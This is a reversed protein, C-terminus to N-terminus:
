KKIQELLEKAKEFAADHELSRELMQIAKKTEGQRHSIDGLYFFVEAKTIPANDDLRQLLLARFTKQARDLDEMDLALRGLDVLIALNGPTIRFAQDLEALGKEKDGDAIYAKALRHHITALEKVRKGGYSEVIKELAVVADKGRGSASYADCLALLLDRDEPASESAKELLLAAAAADNRKTLQIDAAQQLMKVKTADDEAADADEALLAAVEAWAQTKEYLKRLRERVDTADRKVELGRELARRAGAADDIKDFVEALRLALAVADDGDQLGLLKELTEAARTMEGKAEFLRGLAELAGKHGGDRQLVNEYTEIAKATDGLRGEYVEGLRVTFTLEAESDARDKALDIQTNLLDALDRDRGSKEYLQSLAVVAETKGPEEDLVRHLVLIAESVQDFRGAYLDALELRLANREEPSAAVDVMRGLLDALDRHREEKAYLSRLATAAKRDMPDADFIEEYIGLAREAEDLKELMMEAARHRLEATEPGSATLEARRLLLEVAEKHDEAKERLATLEEYAWLYGDDMGILQRLVEESLKDDAVVTAALTQAERFLERRKETDLELVARRRLTEILDRERGPERQLGEIVTLLDLNEADRALAERMAREAAANDALRERYWDALKTYLDRATLTDLEEAKALADSLSQAAETWQQNVEALAELKGLVEVDAPDDGLADQIVKQAHKPDGAQGELVRALDLRLRLRDAPVTAFAVRKEYLAALRGYDERARYVAELATAAEEFLEKDETLKEIAECAKAHDPAHDLAMRLTELGQLKDGFSEIQLVALRHYLDAQAGPETEVSVRRELIESLEQANGLKSHLRDLAELLAPADGSQELARTYAEVARKEDSLHEECLKGLRTWLETALAAEFIKSAREELADAVKAHGDSAAALREIEQHLETDEPTEGLARLMADLAKGSSGLSGDLVEAMARLTQAREPPDLQARLRMELVGVLREHKGTARLVPELIEASELRLAEFSEGIQLVASVASSDEPAEDLVMRFAELAEAPEAIENALLRGIESRLKVRDETAEAVSAELRLTELLDTWMEESRFLQELKQLVGRDAPRVDLAQRLMDIAAPNDRIQEQYRGAANVLLEYKLDDQDDDALEVRRQYLEVLRAADNSSEYLEILCDITFASTPDLDLAREFAQTAGAADDLMDRKCEGVRRWASARDEDSGILEAKKTLVDVLADWDSLLMALFDMKELPEADTEDLAHLRGYAELAQRPDDRKEDHIAALAALLDRKVMGEAGELGGEYADALDDWAGLGDALRELEGRIELDEPDIEFAARLADFARRSDAGREEWLRSTERLISVRDLDDGALDFRQANLHILKRWDDAGEYLPLLTEVVRAKHDESDMLQELDAIAAKHSPVRSVIEELQDIAASLDKMEDRQLRALSLRYLCAKDDDAESEARRLYLDALEGFRGCERYLETLADLSVSDNEDVDVAARFTEIAKDAEGLAGRELAAITHLIKLRDEPEFRHDLAGRYLEVRAESRNADILLKDIADFLETSEPEFNLARQYYVLARDVKGLSAFLEGTRRALLATAPEDTLVEDLEAAFIEALRQEAGAVRAQSELQRWTDQDTIDEHLLKATTELAAAFDEEQEEQMLALRRLLERRKDPDQSSALRAEITAKVSKWDARGLYFPELMEAARARHDPDEAEKLLRELEAIAGEHQSDEALADGLEDFARMPDRLKADAVRAIKVRLDAKDAPSAELQREYLAVLDTAREAQVYLKELAEVAVPDLDIDLVSEYVLIAGDRDELVDSCLRAQRFLLQKREDDAEAADVRRRIIDLLANADGAEEYLSELAVLARRDDARIDMARIYYDRAMERDALETRALDAIRLTVDLQIDGDLIDPAVDRLLAVLEGFRRTASALREVIELWEQVEEGGAAERLGRVGFEFARAPAELPGEAVRVAQRLLSLREEPMLSTEAEIEVVRLLRENDGDAEYLPHLVQAAERRAAEEGLLRELADRSPQHSPEVTLAQRYADLAGGLDNQHARRVDGLRVLLALREAPEDALSLHIEFTEALDIWREAKEYLAELAELTPRDPGFEDVIARWALTAEPVDDLKETLTAAMRTMLRRREEEDDATEQRTRLVEVLERWAEVKEYLRELAALATADVPEDDLRARWADIAGKPDELISECIEGLRGYLEARRAIDDELKVETRLIEVLAAHNGMGAYIEELARAAPLVLNPDTSDIELVRLYVAEARGADGLQDRFISAVEMLISGQVDPSPAASSAKTLVEAIQDHSGSRRGIDILRARARGDVPDLPVLRALAELAGTDDALREDRLTAIRRLLSRQEAEDNATELRIDLVRVLDRTEDRTEYVAELVEAARARLEPVELIREALARADHQNPDMRLVDEVHPLASAPDALNDLQLTGLRLKIEVLDDGDARDLRRELLAVLKGYKKENAYLKELSATASSHLPELDLIREQYDIAKTADEIIDECILAVESLFEIRRASDTTGTIASAYLAELEGWRERAMLIEKLDKFAEENAPQRALVRELYPIAADQDGVQERCLKAARQCLEVEVADPLNLDGELVGRYAHALDGPRGAVVSLDKARDWLVLEESFETVAKLVVDLAQGADDLKIEYVDILRALLELRRGSESTSDILVALAAAEAPADDRDAHVKVLVDAALARTTEVSMLKDLVGIARAADGGHALASVCAGLADDHRALQDVYLEALSLELEGQTADDAQDRHAEVVEAAGAADGAAILLRPLSTLARECSADLELARRYLVVARESESFAEEELMAWEILMSVSDQENAREIRLEFLWRLDDRRSAARLIGDLTQIVEEDEPAEAVLVRYAKIAEDTRDLEHAYVQALRLQLARQEESPMDPENAIRSEIAEVFPQWSGAARAHTEVLQLAGEIGPALDYAKRAYTLAAEKDSLRSGTVEALKRLLALQEDTDEAHALLIEYLAPLRSWREEREYIPVLHSAARTDDPRVSLVREYARFAREPTDLQEEYVQAARYSLDIKTDATTARDAAASLVEALGEWDENQGYLETIADFDEAALYSDRLVRMARSHDPRIELVRKWAGAARRPDELRDAYVAGLKQLVSIRANEDEAMEVRRELVEAVTEYDKDREAQKELADMAGAANSDIALVKKYLAIADSSRDLREAALKAMELFLEVRQDEAVFGAEAELLVFLQPWARRRSYLERLRGRAEDDSPELQFIREYVETANQVNQFQELWRKGAARLLTLKEERDDSLEALKQQHVLLDRWRQLSEYVRCLERVADIDREDHQLIQGLVTVLASDSKINDRYVEAIERLVALRGDADDAAVRDLEHRLVDVLSSWAGTQRYLRKLAVRSAENAPDQRLLAKYQEIAKHVDEQTEALKAIEAGLEAKQEGEPLSRQADTFITLLKGTDGQEECWARYFGLMGPHAPEARRVKDFYPEALDPRERMRWQVMAIQLWIGMDQGPKFGGSRLQDEYLAVLHDWQENRSFFDSLFNMSEPYAPYLDLAREYAAVGRRENGLKRVVIRALRLWAGFREERVTSETALIEIVGCAEEWQEADRYIREMLLLARRNRPDLEVAEKLLTVLSENEVEGHGYRFMTEAAWSLMSSRISPDDVAQAEKVKSEALGQWSSRVDESREIAETATPDDPRLELLRRYAVMAQKDDLLDDELVRALEAQRVFEQPTGHLLSIEYELLNAVAQWERRAEHERRAAALLDALEEGSMGIDPATVADQLELWATENDADDQLLGLASRIKQSSM